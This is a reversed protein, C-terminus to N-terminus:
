ACDCLAVSHGFPCCICAALDFCVNDVAAAQSAAWQEGRQRMHELVQLHHQRLCSLDLLEAIRPVVLGHRRGKPYKDNLLLVKDDHDIQLCCTLMSHIFSDHKASM